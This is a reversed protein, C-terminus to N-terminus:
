GGDAGIDGDRNGPVFFQTGSLDSGVKVTVSYIKGKTLPTGATAESFGPPPMSYTVRDICLSQNSTIIHWVIRPQGSGVAMIQVDSLCVPGSSAIREASFSVVGHQQTAVVHLEQECGGLLLAIIPTAWASTPRTAM